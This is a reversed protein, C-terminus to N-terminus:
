IFECSCLVCVELIYVFICVWGIGVMILMGVGSLEFDLGYSM